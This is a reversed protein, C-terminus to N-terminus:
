DGSPMRAHFDVRMLDDRLMALRTQAITPESLLESIRDFVARRVKTVTTNRYRAIEQALGELEPQTFEVNGNQFSKAKGPM